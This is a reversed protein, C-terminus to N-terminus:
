LLNNRKIMALGGVIVLIAAIWFYVYGYELRLEPIGPSGDVRVFNMGYVGVLFTLPLFIVSVVTLKRMVSNTRHGVMSMYLHLSESLIDRDVLLDQLVTEISGVM